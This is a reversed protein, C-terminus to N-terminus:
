ASSTAIYCCCCCSQCLVHRRYLRSIVTARRCLKGPCFPRNGREATRQPCKKRIRGHGWRLVTGVQFFVPSGTTTAVEFAREGKEERERERRKGRVSRTRTKKCPGPVGIKRARLVSRSHIVPLPFISVLPERSVHRMGNAGRRTENM